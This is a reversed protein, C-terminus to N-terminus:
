YQIEPIGVRAKNQFWVDYDTNQIVGDLNADTPSYTNIVAPFSFWADYDSVQIVGDAIFDGALMMAFGDASENQQNNGFAKDVSETFDYCINYGAILPISTLVAMHNIHRVAFYYEMGWELNQFAIGAQADQFYDILSGDNLLLAPRTEVSIMNTPTTGPTGTMAEVLVWDVVNSSLSTITPADETQTYNWPSTNFPQELPVLDARQNSLQHNGVYAGELLVSLQVNTSGNTSGIGQAEISNVISFGNAVFVDSANNVITQFPPLFDSELLLDIGASTQWVKLFLTDGPHFGDKEDSDSDDAYAFFSIASGNWEESNSCQLLGNDDRYFVGVFDGEQISQGNINSFLSDPLFISHNNPNLPSNGWDISPISCNIQGMTHLCFFIGLTTLITNKM